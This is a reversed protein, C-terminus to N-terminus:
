MQLARMAKRMKYAELPDLPDPAGAARREESAEEAVVRRAEASEEEDLVHANYAANSLM